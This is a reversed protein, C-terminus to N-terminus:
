LVEGTLHKQAVQVPTEVKNFSVGVYLNEVSNQLNQPVDKRYFMELPQTQDIILPICYLM